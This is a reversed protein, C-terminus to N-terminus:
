ALERRYKVGDAGDAYYGPLPGAPQFGLREYLARAPANAARVELSMVSCGRRRADRALAAVLLAGLGRGRCVPDVALSYLRAVRAGRRYLVTAAARVLAGERLVLTRATGAAAAPGIMRAWTRRPFCDAEPFCAHELQVLADADAARADVLRPAAAGRKLDLRGM